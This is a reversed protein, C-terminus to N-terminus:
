EALGAQRAAAEIQSLAEPTEAFTERAEDLIARARDTEGLVALANILRAWEAPGGGETALREALGDVMGRIMDQREDPTMDEAAAVADADPGPLAPDVSRPAAADPLTFRVGALEAMLGIDGRILDVWPADPPSQRLLREWIRFTLDPRGTQFLMLGLYYQAAGDRPDRDLVQRLAHEAEPTVFGGAAEIRLVALTLWDRTTTRDSKIEILRAQARAAAAMNGLAAEHRALLEHGQLDDPRSAVANRLQEVLSLHNEGADPPPAWVPMAAERTAQDPRNQRLMEAIEIRDRLGLDPYAPRGVIAYLGLALVASVGFFAVMLWRPGASTASAARADAALLRRATETRAREAEEPAITGRALDREIESLQDRYIATEPHDSPTQERASNKAALWFLGGLALVTFCAFFWVM